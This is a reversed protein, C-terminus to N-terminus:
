NIIFLMDKLPPFVKMEDLMEKKMEEEDFIDDTNRKFFTIYKKNLRFDEPTQAAYGLNKPFLSDTRARGQDENRVREEEEIDDREDVVLVQNYIKKQKKTLDTLNLEELFYRSQASRRYEEQLDVDSFRSAAYIRKQNIHKDGLESLFTNKNSNEVSIKKPFLSSKVEKDGSMMVMPGLSMSKSLDTESAYNVNKSLEYALDNSEPVVLLVRDTMQLGNDIKLSDADGYFSLKRSRAIHMDFDEQISEVISDNSNIKVVPPQSLVRNLGEIDDHVTITTFFTEVPKKWWSEKETLKELIETNPNWIILAPTDWIPPKHIDPIHVGLLLNIASQKYQDTFTNSLYRKVSTILEIQKREKKLGINTKHAISGGYQLSIIDGMRGFMNRFHKLVADDLVPETNPNESSLNEYIKAVKKMTNPRNHISHNVQLSLASEGLLQQFTNTRDLCDVCNSRIM